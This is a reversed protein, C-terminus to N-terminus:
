QAVEVDTTFVEYEAQCKGKHVLRGGFAIVNFLDSVPEMCWSCETEGDRYLQAADLYQERKVDTTRALRAATQMRAIEQNGTTAHFLVGHHFSAGDIIALRRQIERRLLDVDTPEPM